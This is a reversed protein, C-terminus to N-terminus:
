RLMPLPRPDRNYKSYLSSDAVDPSPNELITARLLIVLESTSGTKDSSKALHGIVPLTDVFPIGEDQNISSDQMLGGMIAVEGSSLQLVSDMERVALVPIQSKVPNAVGSQSANLGISPDDIRDVVRSITPRLTMTVRERDGDIAPQVTMVLGVPVTRPTSSFVPTGSVPVGGSSVTTPFQASTVFYVENRAVKLVATQNNLVTLRPSSLVRTTGFSKVMNLIGSFDKEKISATFMGDAATTAASFPAGAGTTGFRAASNFASSFMTRWNIGSKFEDDLQVEVIRAEILVQASAKHQLRKLYTAVAEHQRSNGFITVMGAQRDISFNSSTNGTDAKDTGSRILTKDRNSSALVQTLSKELESWFDADAISSIKSVSNNDTSSGNRSSNNGNAVDVDFVNTAIGIESTTRRALSLYDVSYTEQYPDDLEVRIFNEDVTYRLGSLSCLRKLVQRFPQEHATFIVGGSIRPDIEFNIGGERGLEILVDRLPVNETVTISVLKDKEIAPPAKAEILQSPIDPIPPPSLNDDDEDSLSKTKATENRNRLDLYDKRTLNASPDIKDAKFFESCGTILLVCILLVIRM